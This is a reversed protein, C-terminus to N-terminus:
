IYVVTSTVEFGTPCYFTVTYKTSPDCIITAVKDDYPYGYAVPCAENKVKMYESQLIPGANCAGPSAFAGACCYPGAQASDPSFSGNQNWKDDILKQCPAYCGSFTGTKPNIARLNVSQGGLIEAEPCKSLSLGSCDMGVFPKQSDAVVCSGVSVDLKFPLTYGDVISMDITDRTPADPPAFTAEFKTDFPPNCQKYDDPKGPLRVVCGEGPGGSEGLECHSGNGDCGMKPWFRTAVLGAGDEAATHFTASGGPSIKVDQPDPGVQGVTM